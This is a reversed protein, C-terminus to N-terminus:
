NDNQKDKYISFLITDIASQAAEDWTGAREGNMMGNIKVYHPIDGGTYAGIVIEIKQGKCLFPDNDNLWDSDPWGSGLETIEIM